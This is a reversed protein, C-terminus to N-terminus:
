RPPGRECVPTRTVHTNPTVEGRSPHPLLIVILLIILWILFKM